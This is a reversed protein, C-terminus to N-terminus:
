EVFRKPPAVEKTILKDEIQKERAATDVPKAAGFISSAAAGGGGGGGGGGGVPKRKEEVNGGALGGGGGTRPM